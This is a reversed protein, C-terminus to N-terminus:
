PSYIDIYLYISNPYIYIYIRIYIYIHIYRYIYIYISNRSKGSGDGKSLDLHEGPRRRWAAGGQQTGHVDEVHERRGVSRHAANRQWPTAVASPQLSPRSPRADWMTFPQYDLYSGYLGM